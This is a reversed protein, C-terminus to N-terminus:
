KPVVKGGTYGYPDHYVRTVVVHLKMTYAIETTSKLYVSDPRVGLQM